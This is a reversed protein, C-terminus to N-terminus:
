KEFYFCEGWTMLCNPVPFDELKNYSLWYAERHDITHSGLENEHGTLVVKAGFSQCLEPLRAAWCIPMFVDVPTIIGELNLMLEQDENLWQDGTSCVTYADPTTVIYINNQLHEQHGPLITAKLEIGNAAIFTEDWIEERRVHKILPNEGLIEDPAIVPIGHSTLCEVIFPDVHDPHNHTLFMIDCTEALASAISDSMLRQNSNKVTPGRYIDWAITVKPTQLIWGDNYLKYVRLGKELPKKLNELVSLMRLNLFDSVVTSNDLRTDHFIQDLLYLAAKRAQSPAEVSPTDTSIIENVLELTLETQAKIIGDKDQWFNSLDKKANMPLVGLIAIFINLVFSRLRKM